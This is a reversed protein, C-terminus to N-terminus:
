LSRFPPPSVRDRVALYLYQRITRWLKLKSESAKRDYRHVLPVEAIRPTAHRLKLLLEVMVAFGQEEVLREHYHDSSRRILSARYARYGSTFDNIGELPFLIKFVM